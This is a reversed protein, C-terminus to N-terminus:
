TQEVLYEDSLQVDIDTKNDLFNNIRELCKKIDDNSRLNGIFMKENEEIRNFMYIDMLIHKLKHKYGKESRYNLSDIPEVLKELNEKLIIFQNKNPEINVLHRFDIQGQIDKGLDFDYIVFINKQKYFQLLFKVLRAITNKGNDYTIVYRDNNLLMNWFYYDIIGEVIIIKKNKNCLITDNIINFIRLISYFYEDNINIIEINTNDDKRHLVFTNKPYLSILDYDHTVIFFNVNKNIELLKTVLKKNNIKDLCLDIEDIFIYSSYKEQSKTYYLPVIITLVNIVSGCVQSIDLEINNLKADIFVIRNNKEHGLDIIDADSIITEEKYFYQNTDKKIIKIKLNFLEYLFNNLEDFCSKGQLQEL